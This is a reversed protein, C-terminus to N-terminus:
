RHHRDQYRDGAVKDGRFRIGMTPEQTGRLICNM